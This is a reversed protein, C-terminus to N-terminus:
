SPSFTRLDHTYLRRSTFADIPQYITPNSIHTSAITPFTSDFTSSLFEYVSDISFDYALINRKNCSHLSTNFLNNFYLQSLGLITLGSFDCVALDRVYLQSTINKSYPMDSSSCLGSFTKTFRYHLSLHHEIHHIFSLSSTFHHGLSLYHARIQFLFGFISSSGLGDLYDLSEDIFYKRGFVYFSYFPHVSRYPYRQSFLFSGFSGVTPKTLLTDFNLSESFDFSFSPVLISIDLSSAVLGLSNCFDHMLTNIATRKKIGFYFALSSIDVTFWVTTGPKYPRLLSYLLNDFPTM